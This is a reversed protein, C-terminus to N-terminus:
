FQKTYGLHMQGCIDARIILMLSQYGHTEQTNEM